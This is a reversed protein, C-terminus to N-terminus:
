ERRDGDKRAQMWCDKIKHYMEDILVEHAAEPDVLRQMLPSIFSKVVIPDELHPDHRGGDQVRHTLVLEYYEAMPITM